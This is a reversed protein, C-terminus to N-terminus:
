VSFHPEGDLFGRAAIAVRYLYRDFTRSLEERTAVAVGTARTVADLVEVPASTRQGSMVLLVDDITIRVLADVEAPNPRFADLSADCRYFYVFQL